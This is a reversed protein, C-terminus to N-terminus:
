WWRERWQKRRWWTYKQSKCYYKGGPLDATNGFSKAAGSTSFFVPLLYRTLSFSFVLFHPLAIMRQTTRTTVHSVLFIFSIFLYVLSGSGRGGPALGQSNTWNRQVKMSVMLMIAKGEKIEKIRKIWTVLQKIISFILTKVM